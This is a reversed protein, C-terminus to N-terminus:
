IHRQKQPDRAAGRRLDLACFNPPAFISWGRRECHPFVELGCKSKQQLLWANADLDAIRPQRSNAPQM